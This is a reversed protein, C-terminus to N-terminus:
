ERVPITTSSIIINNITKIIDENKMYYPIIYLEIDNDLCYQEKRQDREQQVELSVSFFNNDKYHQEGNYEIAIKRRNLEFYFDFRQLSDNLRKEQEFKINNKNLIDRIFCAGKSYKRGCQPCFSKGHIVDGPRVSWIFGCSHRLLVKTTQNIYQSELTYYGSRCNKNVEQLFEEETRGRLVKTKCGCDLHRYLNNLTTKRVHGCNKCTFEYLKHTDRVGIEKFTYLREIEKFKEERAKWLGHCNKCGYAKNPALFNSARSVVINEQCQNCKIIAQKGLSDYQIVQFSEEPFREKIRNLYEDQTVKKLGMNKERKNCIILASQGNNFSLIAGYKM